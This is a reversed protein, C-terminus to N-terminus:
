GGAGFRGRAVREALGVARAPLVRTVVDHRIEFLFLCAAAWAAGLSIGALVDSLYHVELYLRSFGIIGVLVVFSLASGFRVLTTSRRALLYLIAGYTAASGAAHGSPFSYTDLHVYALEPRPRHFVLKLVPTLLEIGLVTACLLTADHTREHRLLYLAAALTLLALVPVSGAFTVVKFVSILTASSHVHLWRSFEVDWRVIPDRTLYDEAIHGFAGVAAAFLLALTVRARFSPQRWRSAIISRAQEFRTAHSASSASPRRALHATPAVTSM